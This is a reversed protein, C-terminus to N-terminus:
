FQQKGTLNGPMSLILVPIDMMCPFGKKICASPPRQEAGDRGASHLITGHGDSM